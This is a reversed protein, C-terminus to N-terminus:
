RSRIESSYVPFSLGDETRVLWQDKPKAPNKGIVKVPTGPVAIALKSLTGDQLLQCPITTISILEADMGNKVNSHLM